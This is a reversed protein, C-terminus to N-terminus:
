LLMEFNGCRIVSMAWIIHSGSLLFIFMDEEPLTMSIEYSM